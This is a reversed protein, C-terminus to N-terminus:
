KPIKIVPIQKQPFKTIIRHNPIKQFRISVRPIRANIVGVSAPPRQPPWLLLISKKFRNALDVTKDEM